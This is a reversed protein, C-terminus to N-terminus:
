LCRQNRQTDCFAAIRSIGLAIAPSDTMQDFAWFDRDNGVLGIFCFQGEAWDGDLRERGPDTGQRM